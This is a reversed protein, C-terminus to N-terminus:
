RTMSRVVISKWMGKVWRGVRGKGENWEEECGTELEDHRYRGIGYLCLLSGSHGIQDNIEGRMGGYGWVDNEGVGNVGQRELYHKITILGSAYSIRQDTRQVKSKMLFIDIGKVWRGICM